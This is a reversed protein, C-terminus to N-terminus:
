FIISGSSLFEYHRFSGVVSTNVTGTTLALSFSSPVRLL